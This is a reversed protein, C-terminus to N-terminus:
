ISLSSREQVVWEFDPHQIVFMIVDEPGRDKLAASVVVNSDLIVRM